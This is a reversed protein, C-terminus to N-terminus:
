GMVGKLMKVRGRVLIQRVSGKEEGVVGAGIPLSLGRKAVCWQAKVSGISANMSQM